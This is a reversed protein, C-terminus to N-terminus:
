KEEVNMMILDAAKPKIKESNANINSPSIKISVGSQNVGTTGLTMMSEDLNSHNWQSQRMKNVRDRGELTYKSPKRNALEEEPISLDSYSERPVPRIIGARELKRKELQEKMKVELNLM